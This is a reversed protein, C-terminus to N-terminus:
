SLGVGSIIWETSTIKIATAVGNPELTKSGTAGDGALRITDSTIAITVNGAGNQNVFTIATGIPFAVSSNAPITFTRATTDASPHLIHRGSDGLVLTYNASRSNQPINRFGVEMNENPFTYTKATTAPGSVSFFGNATGGNAAPLIGTFTNNAFAITKNTLTQSGTLTAVSSDISFTRNATLDGGGTLGTGATLTLTRAAAGIDTLNWSVNATGDFSRATAGITFNRATQLATATSANGTVNGTVNGTLNGALTNTIDSVSAGAGSGNTFVAKTTGPAVTVNSGSGQSLIVNQATTNSVWYLKQATNPSITVTNAGSPSGTFVLVAFQGDSLLGSSTTLTHTTGSLSISGVGNLARDVIDLNLNTTQGWLGTQEGDAIKEIGTNSTFTSPM